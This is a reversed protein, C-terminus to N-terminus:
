HLVGPQSSFLVSLKHAEDFFIVPVRKKARIREHERRQKTQEDEEEEKPEARAEEAPATSPRPEVVDQQERLDMRSRRGFLRSAWKGKGKVSHISAADHDRSHIAEGTAASSSSAQRRGESSTSARPKTEEKPEEDPLNPKFEWYKLLSSQFLEMLRAIDSTRV